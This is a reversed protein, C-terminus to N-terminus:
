WGRVGLSLPYELNYMNKILFFLRYDRVEDVHSQALKEFKELSPSENGFKIAKIMAAASDYIRKAVLTLYVVKLLYVHYWSSLNDYWRVKYYVGMLRSNFNAKISPIDLLTGSKVDHFLDTYYFTQFEKEQFNRFAFIYIHMQTQHLLLSVSKAFALFIPRLPECSEYEQLM